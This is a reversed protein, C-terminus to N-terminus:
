LGVYRHIVDFYERRGTSRRKAVFHIVGLIKAITESPVNHLDQKIATVLMAFGESTPEETCSVSSDGFAYGDLLMEIVRLASGDNLRAGHKRDWLCLTTEIVRAYGQLKTDSDMEEPSFRPCKDYRRTIKAQLLYQCGECSEESRSEGCCLSCVVGSKLACKRKGKRLGCISCKSM